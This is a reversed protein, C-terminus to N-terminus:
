RWLRRPDLAGLFREQRSRSAVASEVVTSRAIGARAATDVSPEADGYSVEVVADALDSLAAAAPVSLRARRTARQAYEAPTDSRSPSAGILALEEQAEQWAVLVLAEPTKAARRRAARRARTAIPTVALLLLPLCWPGLGLLRRALSRRHTTSTGAGAQNPRQHLGGAPTSRVATTPTTPVTAAPGEAPRGGQQPPVGTWSTAGPAGRGPTPEFAVWGVGGFYIEPWAHAHVGKVHFRGTGDADGQTFGVAVRAPLGLVRAMVAYTGAFQQCFGERQHLFNVIANASDDPPVNLSYSFNNRFYNQLNLAKDYATVAGRTAISAALTVESPLTPLSLDSALTPDDTPGPAKRLTGPDPAADKSVVQYSMGDTTAKDAILSGAGPSYSVKGPGTYRVPRYAAPLWISNLTTVSFSATIDVGTTNPGPLPGRVHRYTDNLSWGNGDFHDLATLRWYAPANAVVTFVEVNSQDTLRARIDVLPSETTRGTGSGATHRWSFLPHSTAGPLRPGVIVAVVVAALTLLAGAQLIAAPGRVSRSAFWAARPQDVGAERVLLFALLATLWAGAALAAYHGQALAASFIFLSLSPLCAEITARMRFAAWDALFAAVACAVACSLVFGPAVPSPPSASRFLDMANSLARGAARVTEGTPIGVTTSGPLVTWALMLGGALLSAIAAVSLGLGARRCAACVVHVAVATLVVPALFSLPTRFLRALDVAAALTLAVLTSESLVSTPRTPAPLRAAGPPGARRTDSPSDSRRRAGNGRTEPAPKTPATV